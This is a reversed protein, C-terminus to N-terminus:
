QRAPRIDILGVKAGIMVAETRTAAHLKDLVARVHNKVTNQSIFLQSAIERNSCGTAMFQLIESERPTLGFDASQVGRRLQVGIDAAMAGTLSEAVWAQGRLAAHVAASFSAATGHLEWLVEIGAALLAAFDIRAPDAVVAVVASPSATDARVGCFMRLLSPGCVVLDAEAVIRSAPDVTPRLTADPLVM